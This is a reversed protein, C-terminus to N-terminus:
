LPTNKWRELKEIRAKLAENETTLRGVVEWLDASDDAPPPVVPPTLGCFRHLDVLSGNFRDLDINGSSVGYDAGLGKDTYQWFKWTPFSAISPVSAATWHAIWLDCNELLWAPLPALMLATSLNIYLLTRRNTASKIHLVYPELFRLGIDRTLSGFASYAELDCVPQIETPKANYLDALYGAQTAGAQRYDVFQYVGRLLGVSGAGAHYSDFRTDKTTSFYGRLIAFECMSKMKSFNVDGQWYSIDVGTIM